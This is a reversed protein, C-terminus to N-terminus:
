LALLLLLLMCFEAGQKKNSLSQMLVLLFLFKSLPSLVSSGRLWPLYEQPRTAFIDALSDIIRLNISSFSRAQIKQMKILMVVSHIILM